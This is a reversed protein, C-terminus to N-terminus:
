CQRYRAEWTIIRRTGQSNPTTAHKAKARMNGLLDGTVRKAKQGIGSAVKGRAGFSIKNVEM